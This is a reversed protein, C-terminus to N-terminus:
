ASARLAGIIASLKSKKSTRCAEALIRKDSKKGGTKPTVTFCVIMTKAAATNIPQLLISLEAVYFVIKERLRQKSFSVRV